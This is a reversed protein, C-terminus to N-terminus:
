FFIWPVHKQHFPFLAAQTVLSDTSKKNLELPLPTCSTTPSTCLPISHNEQTAPASPWSPNPWCQEWSRCNGKGLGQLDWLEVRSHTYSPIGACKIALPLFVTSGKPRREEWGKGGKRNKSLASSAKGLLAKQREDLLVINLHFNELLSWLCTKRPKHLSLGQM